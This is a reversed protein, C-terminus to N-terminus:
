TAVGLPAADLPPRLSIFPNQPPPRPLPRLHIRYCAVENVRCNRFYRTFFHTFRIRTDTEPCLLKMQHVCADDDAEPPRVEDGCPFALYM